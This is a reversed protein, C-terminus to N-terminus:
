EDTTGGPKYEDRNAYESKIWIGGPLDDLGIGAWDEVADSWVVLKTGARYLWSGLLVLLWSALHAAIVKM